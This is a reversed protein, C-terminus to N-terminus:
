MKQIKAVKCDVLHEIENVWISIKVVDESISIVKFTHKGTQLMQEVDLTDKARFTMTEFNEDLLGYIPLELNIFNSTVKKIKISAKKFAQYIEVKDITDTSFQKVEDVTKDAQKKIDRFFKKSARKMITRSRWDITKNYVSNRFKSVIGIMEYSCM